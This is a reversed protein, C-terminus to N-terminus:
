GPHRNADGHHDPPHNRVVQVPQTQLPIQLPPLGSLDEMPHTEFIAGNKRLNRPTIMFDKTPNKLFAKIILNHTVSAWRVGDEGDRLTGDPFYLDRVARPSM